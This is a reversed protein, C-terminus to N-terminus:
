HAFAELLPRFWLREHIARVTSQHSRLDNRFRGAASAAITGPYGLTRLHRDAATLQDADHRGVYGADALEALATLTTPTRLEEDAGGHVLQLLQVAFEVDRIGGSGVKLERDSVGRRAVDAEARAKM